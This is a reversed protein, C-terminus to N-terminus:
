EHMIADYAAADTFLRYLTIGVSGFVGIFVLAPEGKTIFNYDVATGTLCQCTYMNLCATGFAAWMQPVFNGPKDKGADKDYAPPFDPYVRGLFTQANQLDLVM